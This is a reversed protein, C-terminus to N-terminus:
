CKPNTGIMKRLRTHTCTNETGIRRVSIALIAEVTESATSGRLLSKGKM